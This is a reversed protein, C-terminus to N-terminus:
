SMPEFVNAAKCCTQCSCSAAGTADEIRNRKISKDLRRSQMSSVRSQTGSCM